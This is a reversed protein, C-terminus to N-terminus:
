CCAPVQHVTTLRFIHLLNGKGEWGTNCLVGVWSRLEMIKRIGRCIDQNRLRTPSHKHSPPFSHPLGLSVWHDATHDFQKCHWGRGPFSFLHLQPSKGSLINQPSPHTLPLVNLLAGQPKTWHYASWGGPLGGAKKQFNGGTLKRPITYHVAM